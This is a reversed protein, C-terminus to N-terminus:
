KKGVYSLIGIADGSKGDKFYFFITYPGTKSCQFNVSQYTKGTKPNHSSIIVKDTDFLKLVAEDESKESNCVTFRYTTNKRLIVSKKLVPPHKKDSAAPLSIKFDTLYTVDSGATAVCQDIIDDGGQSSAYHFNLLIIAILIISIRKM